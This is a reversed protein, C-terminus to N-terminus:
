LKCQNFVFTIFYDIVPADTVAANEDKTTSEM